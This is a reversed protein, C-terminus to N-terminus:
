RFSLGCEPCREVSARLDYGCRVCKGADVRDGLLMLKLGIAGGLVLGGLLGILLAALQQRSPGWFGQDPVIRAILCGVIIGPVAGIIGGVCAVIILRARM